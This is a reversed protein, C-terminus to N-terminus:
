EFTWIDSEELVDPVKKTLDTLKHIVTAVREDGCGDDTLGVFSFFEETKRKLDTADFTKVAEVLGDSDVAVPYPRMELPYYLGRDDNFEDLDPAYIFGPRGTLCFDDIISSYDSILVDSAVLLEQQDPYDTADILGDLFSPRPLSAINPHLRYAVVFRQGFRASLADSFEAYNFRYWDFSYDCRFTPAYLCLLADDPVGLYGRVKARVDSDGFVLPRNRPTGCRLVPGDFWFSNQYVSATLRNDAVMLDSEAGDTKALSVYSRGLADEVDRECKKAGLCAHWAQIFVQDASKPVYRCERFNYIWFRATALERQAELSGYKVQRLYSPLSEDLERVLLVIDFEGPYMRELAEAIYKPNCLYGRGFNCSLVVKFPEIPADRAIRTGYAWKCKSSIHSRIAKVKRWIPRLTDTLISGAPRAKWILSRGHSRGDKVVKNNLSIGM